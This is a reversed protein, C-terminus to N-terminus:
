VDRRVSVEATPVGYVHMISWSEGSTDPGWRTSSHTITGYDHYYYWGATLRPEEGRELGMLKPVSPGFIDLDLIGVRLRAQQTSPRHLAFAMALNVSGTTLKKLNNRVPVTYVQWHAKESAEKVALWWWWKEYM